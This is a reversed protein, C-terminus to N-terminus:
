HGRLQTPRVRLPVSYAKAFNKPDMGIRRIMAEYKAVFEPVQDGPPDDSVGAEAKFTIINGGMGDGDFHLAVGPNREINKLKRKGPQSYVLFSSGDWLFWVPIPEPVQDPGITTLWILKEERLRREVRQGYETSTDISFTRAKL